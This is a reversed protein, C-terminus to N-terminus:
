SIFTGFWKPVPQLIPPLFGKQILKEITIYMLVHYAYQLYDGAGDFFKAYVSKQFGGVLVDFNSFVIEAAARGAKQIQPYMKIQTNIDFVPVVPKGQELWGLGALLKREKELLAEKSGPPTLKFLTMPLEPNNEYQNMLIETRNFLTGHLVSVNIGINKESIAYSYYNCGFNTFNSGLELFFAPLTTQAESYYQRSGKQTELQRLGMLFAIDMLSFDVLFHAVKDWDPDGVPRAKTYTDSLQPIMASVHSAITEGLPSLSSEIAAMEQGTFVPVTTARAKDRPVILSLSQAMSVLKDIEEAPLGTQSVIQSKELPNEAIALLLSDMAAIHDGFYFKKFDPGFRKELAARGGVILFYLRRKGLASTQSGKVESPLAALTFLISVFIISKRTM